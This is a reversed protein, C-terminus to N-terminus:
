HGNSILCEIKEILQISSLKTPVLSEETGRCIYKLMELIVARILSSMDSSFVLKINCFTLLEMGIERGELAGHWPQIQMMTGTQFFNDELRHHGSPDFIMQVMAYVQLQM